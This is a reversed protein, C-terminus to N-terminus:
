KNAINWFCFPVSSNINMNMHVNNSYRWNLFLVVFMGSAVGHYFGPKNEFRDALVPTSDEVGFQLLKQRRRLMREDHSEYNNEQKPKLAELLEEQTTVKKLMEGTLRITGSVLVHNSCCCVVVLLAIIYRQLMVNALRTTPNM